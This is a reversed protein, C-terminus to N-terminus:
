NEKEEKKIGIYSGTMYFLRSEVFEKVADNIVKNKKEKSVNCYRELLTLIDINIKCGIAKQTISMIYITKNHQIHYGVPRLIYLM